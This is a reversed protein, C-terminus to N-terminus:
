VSIFKADGHKSVRFFSSVNLPRHERDVEKLYTQQKNQLASSTDKLMQFFLKMKADKQGQRYLLASRLMIHISECSGVIKFSNYYLHRDVM